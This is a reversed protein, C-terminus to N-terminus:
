GDLQTRYPVNIRVEARLDEPYAWPLQDLGPTPTRLLPDADMWGQTPPVSRGDGPLRVHVRTARISDPLLLEMLTNSPADLTRKATADPASWVSTASSTRLW